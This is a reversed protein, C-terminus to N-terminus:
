GNPGPIEREGRAMREVERAAFEKFTLAKGGERPASLFENWTTRRRLWKAVNELAIRAITDSDM